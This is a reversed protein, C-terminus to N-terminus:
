TSAACFQEVHQLFLPAAQHLLQQGPLDPDLRLVCLRCSPCSLVLSRDAIMSRGVPYVVRRNKSHVPLPSGGLRKPKCWGAVALLLPTASRKGGCELVGAARRRQDHIWRCACYIWHRVKAVRDDLPGPLDLDTRLASTIMFKFSKLDPMKWFC